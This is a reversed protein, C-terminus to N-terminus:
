LRNEIGEAVVQEKLFEMGRWFLLPKMLLLWTNSARSWIMTNATNMNGNMYVFNIIGVLFSHLM